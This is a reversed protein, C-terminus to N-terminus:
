ELTIQIEWLHRKLQIYKLKPQQAYEMMKNDM